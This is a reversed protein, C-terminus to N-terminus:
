QCFEHWSEIWEKPRRGQARLERLSLSESRKALRQGKEDLMLPCHYWKPPTWNLAEYLLLQRATSTLLDEGRVVETIQMAHDDAVVALEYSPFGDKRWVLFDGFDIGATRAVRGVLGDLFTLRRGDPARFRWNVGGPTLCERGEDDDDPRLNIPFIPEGDSQHPAVLAAEVDKRSHLSPYILGTSHLQKWVQLYYNGRQSQDYPTFIGGLDPGEQWDLGLWRLDEIAAAAFEPKCRSQDLDENRYVLTGGARRAREAAIWFTRAHGLHLYGTPTPAIRGRYASKNMVLRFGGPTEDFIAFIVPQAHRAM